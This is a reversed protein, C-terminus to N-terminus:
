GVPSSCSATGARQMKSKAQQTNSRAFIHNSRRESKNTAHARNNKLACFKREYIRVSLRPIHIRIQQGFLQRESILLALQRLRNDSCVDQPLRSVKVPNEIDAILVM